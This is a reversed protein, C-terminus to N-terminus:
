SASLRTRWCSGGRARRRIRNARQDAPEPIVAVIGRTRLLTRTARSSYAKDGLVKDPTTRPRGPGLRPVRIERRAPRAADARRPGAGTRRDGCHGLEAMRLGSVLVFVVVVLVVMVVM